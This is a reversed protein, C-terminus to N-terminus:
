PYMEFHKMVLSEMEKLEEAKCRLGVVEYLYRVVELHGRGMADQIAGITGGEKRNEHLYKVVELHGGWAASDIAETSCHVDPINTHLYRIVELQNNAAADDISPVSLQHECLYKLVNLHGKQAAYFGAKSISGKCVKEGYRNHLFKIIEINGQAAAKEFGEKSFSLYQKQPGHTYLYNLLELDDGAHGAASDLAKPTIQAKVTEVLYTVLEKNGSKIAAEVAYNMCGSGVVEHLYKVVELHGEASAYDMTEKTVLEDEVAGESSGAAAVATSRREILYKLMELNGRRAVLFVSLASVAEGRDEHFFKVMELDCRMAACDLGQQGQIVYEYNEFLFKVVRIDGWDVADSLSAESPVLLGRQHLYQVIELQGHRIAFRGAELTPVEGHVELLFKVVEIYGKCCASNLASTTCGESRNEHLYQLAEFAGCRAADDMAATTFGVIDSSENFYRLIHVHNKRSAETIALDNVKFKLSHLTQLWELQGESAALTTPLGGKFDNSYMMTQGDHFFSPMRQKLDSLYRNLIGKHGMYAAWLGLPIPAILPSQFPIEDWWENRMAVNVLRLSMKTLLNQIQWQAVLSNWDNLCQLITYFLKLDQQSSALHPFQRRLRHYLAKSKIKGLGTFNDPFSLAPTTTTSDRTLAKPQISISPQPLISLDGDWDIEFVTTWLQNFTTPTLNERSLQNNLYQTLPDSLSLVKLHL